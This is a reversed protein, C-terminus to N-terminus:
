SFLSRATKYALDQDKQNAYAGRSNAAHTFLDTAVCVGASYSM